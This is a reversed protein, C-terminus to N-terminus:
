IKDNLIGKFFENIDFTNSSGREINSAIRKINCKSCIVVCGKKMRADFIEAVKIKCGECYLVKM